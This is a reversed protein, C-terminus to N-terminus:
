LPEERGAMRLVEARVDVVPPCEKLEQEAQDLVAAARAYDERTRTARALALRSQFSRLTLSAILTDNGAKRLDSLRGRVSELRACLSEDLAALEAPTRDKLSEDIRRAIADYRDAVTENRRGAEEKLADFAGDEIRTPTHAALWADLAECLDERSRCARLSLALSEDQAEAWAAFDNHRALHHRLQEDTLSPLVDRLQAISGVSPGDHIHFPNM